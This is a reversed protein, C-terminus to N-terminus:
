RGAGGSSRADEALDRYGMGELTRTGANWRLAIMDQNSSDVIYLADGSAGNRTAGDIRGSVMVYQGRTRPQASAGAIGGGRAGPALAVAVLALLLGINLGALARRRNM